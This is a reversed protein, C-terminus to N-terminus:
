KLNLLELEKKVKEKARRVQTGVTSTPIELIDSIEDYSKEEMFRLVLIDKYKVPIKLFIKQILEKNEINEINKLVDNENFVQEVLFINEEVSINSSEKKYRRWRSITKNHAVRYIWSSFKLSIDFSNINEYASLFIEQLVDERDEISFSSIRKIYNDLKKQYRDVFIGFVADDTKLIEVLEEDSKELFEQM